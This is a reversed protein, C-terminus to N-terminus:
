YGDILSDDLGLYSPSEDAFPAIEVLTAENRELKLLLPLVGGCPDLVCAEVAPTAAKRLFEVTSRDPFRPRGMARWLGWPNGAGEHVRSRRALARAGAWPLDIKLELPPREAVELVPNWAVLALSGDARRAAVCREDRHVVEGSLKSFFAFLHFTPKPIGHGALLGFGGHFLSRPLDQEEFIDCFTWYSLTEVIGGSESLLRALFAANLPTDHVPCLPHYSTNFETIHLELGPFGAADIRSRVSRLEEVPKAPDSLGQYFLEPTRSRPPQGAYLHRTFFDLPLGRGRVFALFDEVWDDSTGCTAPGGVRIAPDVSKIALASSEFLRFYAEKSAGEWFGELNPENWVEIPWRRVEEAGYRAIWHSCLGRVLWSWLEWDAPPTVNGKWWFVTQSGSALAAPMFGLEVFPRVGNELMADFVRDLYTFNLFPRRKGEWEDVRLVGLEDCLLGHCRIYEFGIADRVQRFREWYEARLMTSVRESGVCRAWPKSFIERNAPM